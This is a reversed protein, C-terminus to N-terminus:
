FRFSVGIFFAWDNPIALMPDSSQTHSAGVFLRVQENFQWGLQGTFSVWSNGQFDTAGDVGAEVFFHDYLLIGVRFSGGVVARLTPLAQEFVRLGVRLSAQYYLAVNRDVQLVGSHAIRAPDIDIRGTAGLDDWRIGGELTGLDIRTSTYFPESGLQSESQFHISYISTSIRTVLIGTGPTARPSLAGDIAIRTRLWQTGPVGSVGPLHTWVSFFPVDGAGVIGAATGSDLEVMGRATSSVTPPSAQQSSTRSRALLEQRRDSKELFDDAAIQAVQSIRAPNVPENAEFLFSSRFRFDASQIDLRIRNEELTVQPQAIRIQGLERERLEEQVEQTLTLTSRSWALHAATQAPTPVQARANSTLAAFLFGAGVISRYFSSYVLV